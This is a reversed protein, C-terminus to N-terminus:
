EIFLPITTPDGTGNDVVSGYAWIKGGATRVEVTVLEGVQPSWDDVILGIAFV